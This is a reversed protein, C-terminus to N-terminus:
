LIVAENVQAHLALILHVDAITHAYHAILYMVDESLNVWGVEAKRVYYEDHYSIREGDSLTIELHKKAM